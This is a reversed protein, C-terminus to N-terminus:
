QLLEELSQVRQQMRKVIPQARGAANDETEGPFSKLIVRVAAIPDGNRDRLPVTVLATDKTREYYPVGRHIVEEETKGGAQGLDSQQTSAVVSLTAAGARVAYIRLGSLRPYAKMADNVLAQALIERTTYNVKTDSFYAVTDGATSFGINGAAGASANDVLKIADKGDLSCVIRTGECEVSLDHWVDTSIAMEPGFPPKLEGRAMKYCRFAGESASAYVAYFNSENQFHFVIGAAQQLAGGVIKFRTTLRFDGYTEDKYVLMPFYNAMPYKAVQGLVARKSVATAKANVPALLPPVDDFVIKWEGPKGHGAVTSRFGEPLQDAQYASFDFAREAGLASASILILVIRLSTQM